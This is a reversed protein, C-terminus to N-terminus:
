RQSSVTIIIVIHYYYWPSSTGRRSPPPEQKWYVDSNVSSSFNKDSTLSASSASTWDRCSKGNWCAFRVSALSPYAVYYYHREAPQWTTYNDYKRRDTLHPRLCQTKPNHTRKHTRVHTGTRFCERAAKDDVKLQMKFLAFTSMLSQGTEEWQSDSQANARNEHRIAKRLKFNWNCM